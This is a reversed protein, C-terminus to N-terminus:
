GSAPAPAALGDLVAADIQKRRTPDFTVRDVPVTGLRRIAMGKLTTWDSPLNEEHLETPLLFVTYDDPYDDVAESFSCDFLYLYGNHRTLFIRPVDWFGRYTIPVWTAM